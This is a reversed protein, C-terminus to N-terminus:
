KKFAMPRQAGERFGYQDDSLAGRMEIENTLRNVIIIELIKAGTDILCTPSFSKDPLGSPKPVLILKATKWKNLILGSEVIQGYMEVFIEPDTEMKM